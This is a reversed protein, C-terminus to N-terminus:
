SGVYFDSACFHDTSSAYGATWDGQGGSIQAYGFISPGCRQTIYDYTGQLDAAYKYGGSYPCLFAVVGGSVCQM